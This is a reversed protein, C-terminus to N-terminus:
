RMPRDQAAEAGHARLANAFDEDGRALVKELLTKGEKSQANLDSGHSTLLRIMEDLRKLGAHLYFVLADGDEDTVNALAADQRLLAGVREVGDCRVADFITAFSLLYEVVHGQQNHAAWHIPKGRYQPDRVNPDAGLAILLQVLELNGAWAANHMPTTNRNMGVSRHRTTGSLEFGLEAMLRIGDLRGTEVARHLLEVRGDRGLTELLNPDAGLLALAEARRGSTCAVAFADSPDLDVKRAGHQLLYAAIERNGALLAAEYPTRGDRVGPTNVDAGHEILLRVRDPYNKRAASWLEEVLLTDPSQMREGLRKFWPGGKDRGLGYPLLLKLHDDNKKFHRNYLTQGDNPDAGADLLLRALETCYQHPGQNEGDEGEGFAGTLATFPPVLGRWLFGANADAGNALLLRAVELTSHDPDTSNLRSYCAYLLPEWGLPGGKANARTPDAALMSQTASVDGVTAAAYINARAVDPHEVLSRRAKVASSPHWDGYDLCALRVFTDARSGSVETPPGAPPNWAFREVVELHKKLKPWSSFGYARATVL